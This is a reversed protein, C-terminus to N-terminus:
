YLCVECHINQVIYIECFYPRLQQSKQTGIAVYIADWVNHLKLVVISFDLDMNVM